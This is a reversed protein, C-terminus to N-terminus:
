ADDADTVVAVVEELRFHRSDIKAVGDLDFRARRAELDDVLDCEDFVLPGEGAIVAARLTVDRMFDSFVGLLAQRVPLSLANVPPHDILILAVDGHRDLRVPAKQM